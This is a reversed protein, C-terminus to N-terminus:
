TKGSGGPKLTYQVNITCDYKWAVFLGSGLKLQHSTSNDLITDHVSYLSPGRSFMQQRFVICSICTLAPVHICQVHVHLKMFVIARIGRLAVPCSDIRSIWHVRCEVFIVQLSWCQPWCSTEWWIIFTYTYIVCGDSTERKQFQSTFLAPAYAMSFGSTRLGTM